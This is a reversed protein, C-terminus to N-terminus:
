PIDANGNMLVVSENRGVSNLGALAQQETDDSSDADENGGKVEVDDVTSVRIAGETAFEEVAPTQQLTTEKQNVDETGLSPSAQEEM